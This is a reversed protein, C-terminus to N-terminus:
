PGVLVVFMSTYLRMESSQVSEEKFPASGAGFIHASPSRGLTEECPFGPRGSWCRVFRRLAQPARLPAVRM